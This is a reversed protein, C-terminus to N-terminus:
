WRVGKIVFVFVALRLFKVDTPAVLLLSSHQALVPVYSM